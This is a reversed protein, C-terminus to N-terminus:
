SSKSPAMEGAWAKVSKRMTQVATLIEDFKLNLMNPGDLLQWLERVTDPFPKVASTGGFGPLCRM